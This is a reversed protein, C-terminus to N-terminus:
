LSFREKLLNELDESRSLDIDHRVKYKKSKDYYSIQMFGTAFGDVTTMGGDRSVSYGNKRLKKILEILTTEPIM